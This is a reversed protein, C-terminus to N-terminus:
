PTFGSVIVGFVDRMADGYAYDADVDYEEISKQYLGWLRDMVDDDKLIEDRTRGIKRFTEEPENTLWEKLDDKFSPYLIM